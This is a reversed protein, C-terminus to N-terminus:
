RNVFLLSNKWEILSENDNFLIDKKNKIKEQLKFLYNKNKSLEIAFKIYDEKNNCIFKELGMKKYFGSTFRGNIINSPQTVIVKNLSFCELSSNCGGFPYPDLIIDSINILNLYDFHSLFPFFKFKHTINKNEFREMFKYKEPNDLLILVANDTEELIQIIYLDFIPNLKFLSQGCFYIITNNTFGFHYRNKFNNINYYKLPNEYVTSLSNHLILKESYNLQAKEYPLEYLKSSIFYDITDIGSTDSHGWTNIQVKALRLHAMYYSVPDMGIECYVIIDFQKNLLTSKIESLTRSLKIHKAKGFCYKVELTLDDFTSFYIDFNNDESLGKIILHRDKFVSHRRTLQSAHFLVKIKKNKFKIVLDNNLDKCIQRNIESKLKFIEVNNQGQYSLSFNNVNFMIIQDLSINTTIKNKLYLLNSKVRERAKVFDDFSKYFLEFKYALILLFNIIEPQKGLNLISDFNKIEIYDFIELVKILENDNQYNILHNILLLIFEEPKVKEKIKKANKKISNFLTKLNELSQEMQLSNVLYIIYEDKDELAIALKVIINKKIENFDTNNLLLYITQLLKINQISNLISLINKNISDEKGLLIYCTIKKIIINSYEFYSTCGKEREELIELIKEYDKIIFLQNELLLYNKPFINKTIIMKKLDYLDDYETKKSYHFPIQVFDSASIELCNDLSFSNYDKLFLIKEFYLLTEGLKNKLQNKNTLTIVNTIYKKNLKNIKAKYENELFNVFITLKFFKLNQEYLIDLIQKTKENLEIVINHFIIDKFKEQILENVDKIANNKDYIFILDKDM